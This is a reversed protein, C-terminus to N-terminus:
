ILWNFTFRDDTIVSIIIHLFNERATVPFLIFHLYSKDTAFPFVLQRQMTHFSHPAAGQEQPIPFNLGGEELTPKSFVLYPLLPAHSPFLAGRSSCSKVSVNCRVINTTNNSSIHNPLQLRCAKNDCTLRAAQSSLEQGEKVQRKQLKPTHSSGSM